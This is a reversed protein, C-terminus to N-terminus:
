AASSLRSAAGADLYWHVNPHQSLYSGPCDASAAEELSRRVAEAKAEGTALMIIERAGLIDAIGMTIARSPVAELELLSPQNAELTEESLEVVRLHSSAESGPENFGIHGNTGLGLLQLDIGGSNQLLKAYRRAEDHNDVADGIILNIRDEAFDAQDFLERRMFAAFSDPHSASLGCYEDLNFTTTRSFSVAGDRIAEILRAYVRRPTQGTALGLVAKPNNRVTTLLHAAVADAAEGATPFVARKEHRGVTIRAQQTM